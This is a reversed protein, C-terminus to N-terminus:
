NAGNANQGQRSLEKLVFSVLTVFSSSGKLGPNGGVKHVKHGEHKPIQGMKLPMKMFFITMAATM